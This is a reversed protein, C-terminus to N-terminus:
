LLCSNNIQEEAAKAGSIDRTTSIICPVGDIEMVSASVLCSVIAGDKRRFDAELNRCKSGSRLLEVFRQRQGPDPWVNLGLSTRGILEDREFGLIDLVAQNVDIYVGDSLRNISILDTSTQFVTRYRAESVLLEDHARALQHEADWRAQIDEVFSILHLPKGDADCQSSVTVKAWRVSGDKRVFPKEFSTSKMAGSALPPIIGMTMERYEPPTFREVNLGPTEELPYGIIEAFRPNCWLIRVDFSTHTIGTAAQEFTARYLQESERLRTEIRKKDTIDQVSGENFLPQGDRGFVKRCSLLVWIVIGHKFRFRAEHGLETKQEGLRQLFASREVPDVWVDLEVSRISSILDQPSDYGLMRAMARNATLVTGELSSQFMGEVAGDFIDRYKKEAEVLKSHLLKRQSIDHVIASTGVIKGQASRIPSGSLSVDVHSGDKRQVVIEIPEFSKGAKIVELRPGVNKRDEPPLLTEVSKGVIEQSTYGMLCEAGKNWSVITGDLSIAHIAENASEVIAALLGKAQEAEYQLSVDRAIVSIAEVDGASNHIPWTTVSVHIARGDKRIGMGARACLTKGSLVQETHQHVEGITPPLVLM